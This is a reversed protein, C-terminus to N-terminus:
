SAPIILEQGVYITYDTGINNVRAIDQYPVGYRLGIRFLNEGARVIHIRQGDIIVPQAAASAGTIVPAAAQVSDSATPTLQGGVLALTGTTNIVTCTMGMANPYSNVTVPVRPAQSADLFVLSGTGAVCVELPESLSGFIDVAFVLGMDLVEQNGVGISDVIQCFVGEQNGTITVREDCPAANGTLVDDDVGGNNATDGPCEASILTSLDATLTYRFTRSICDTNATGDARLPWSASDGSIVINGGSGVVSSVNATNTDGNQLRAIIFTGGVINGNTANLEVVASVRPGGGVGYSPQWGNVSGSFSVNGGDASFVAYFTGGINVVGFARSDAGSSDYDDRCWIQTTGDFAVLIPNQNTASVQRYGAFVTVTSSTANQAGTAAVDARTMSCDFIVSSGIGAYAVGVSLFSILSSILGILFINKRSRM